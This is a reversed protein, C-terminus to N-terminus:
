RIGYSPHRLRHTQRTDPESGDMAAALEIEEGGILLM